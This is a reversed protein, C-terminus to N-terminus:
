WISAAEFWEANSSSIPFANLDLNKNQSSTRLMVPFTPQADLTKRIAPETTLREILARIYISFTCFLDSTRGNCLKEVISVRKYCRRVRGNAPACRVDIDRCERKRRLVRKNIVIKRRKASSNDGDHGEPDVPM